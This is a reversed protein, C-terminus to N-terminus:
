IKEKNSLILGVLFWIITYMWSKAIIVMLIFGIFTPSINFVDAKILERICRVFFFLLFPVTILGFSTIYSLYSHIYYGEKGYFDLHWALDGGFPNQIFVLFFKELIDLRALVSTDQFLNTFISLQRNFNIINNTEVYTVFVFAFILSAIFIILRNKSKLISLFIVILMSVIASRSYLFFQTLVALPILILLWLSNLYISLLLGAILLYIESVTLYSVNTQGFIINLNFNGQFLWLLVFISVLIFANRIDSSFQDKDRFAYYGTWFYNLISLIFGSYIFGTKLSLEDFIINAIVVSLLYFIFIILILFIKTDIKRRLSFILVINICFFIFHFTQGFFIGAFSPFLQSNLSHFVQFPFFIYFQFRTILSEFEIALFRKIM